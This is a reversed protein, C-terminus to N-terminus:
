ENDAMLRKTLTPVVFGHSLAFFSAMHFSLNYTATADIPFFVQYNKVFASRATTDCCLHTMVGTIVVTQVGKEKLMQDLTTEHFFDYTSKEIIQGCSCEIAPYLQSLGDERKITGGWWTNMLNSRLSDVHRSFFIPRKQLCFFRILSNINDTIAHSSPVFAHSQPDTFYRQMDLVLLAATKMKFPFKPHRRYINGIKQEIESAVKDISSVQFYAEKYKILPKGQSSNLHTMSRNYCLLGESNKKYFAVFLDVAVTQPLGM